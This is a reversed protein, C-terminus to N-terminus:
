CELAVLLVAYFYFPFMLAETSKKQSKMEFTFSNADLGENRLCQTPSIIRVQSHKGTDNEAITWRRKIDKLSM